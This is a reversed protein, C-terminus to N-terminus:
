KKLQHPPNQLSTPYITRERDQGYMYKSLHQVMLGTRHQQVAHVDAQFTPQVVKGTSVWRPAATPFM